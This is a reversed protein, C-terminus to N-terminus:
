SSPVPDDTPVTSPNVLALHEEKEEDEDKEVDDDDDDDDFPKNDYNDGGDAPYDAHDEEPNEEDEKYDGHSSNIYVSTYTVTSSSFM